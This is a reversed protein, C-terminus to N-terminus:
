EAVNVMESQCAGTRVRASHGCVEYLKDFKLYPEPEFVSFARVGQAALARRDVLFLIRTANDTRLYLKAIAASLLTKGTGTAMEFLFHRRSPSAATQLARVAAVQYDRLLRIKKNVMITARDAAPYSLWAADQSVAIYNEDVTVAALRESDPRWEASKGLEELPLFRSVRVPNGQRLSWYYHVQGNSLFIHSVGLGEAYGRAQEKATLRDVNERKAEVVAVPQRNDNLLLYDVFGHPAHEFDQGLDRGTSFVQRTVRNECSVNARRGQDDPQFRWGAAELLHNITVRAQAESPM